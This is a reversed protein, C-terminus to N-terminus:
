RYRTAWRRSLRARSWRRRPESFCGSASGGGGAGAPGVGWVDGGKAGRADGLGEGHRNAWAMAPPLCGFLTLVGFAGATDLASLFIDPNSVAFITPPILTAMYVAERRGGREM